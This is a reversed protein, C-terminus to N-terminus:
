ASSTKKTKGQCSCWNVDGHFAFPSLLLPVALPKTGTKQSMRPWLSLLHNSLCHRGERESSTSLLLMDRTVERTSDAYRRSHKAKTVYQCTGNRKGGKGELQARVEKEWKTNEEKRKVECISTKSLNTYKKPNKCDQVFSLKCKFQWNPDIYIAELTKNSNIKLNRPM